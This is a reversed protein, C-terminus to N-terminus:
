MFTQLLNMANRQRREAAKAMEKQFAKEAERIHFAEQDAKKKDEAQKKQIEELKKKASKQAKSREKAERVAEKAQSEALAQSLIGQDYSPGLTEGSVRSGSFEEARQRAEPTAGVAAAEQSPSLIGQEVTKSPRSYQALFDQTSLPAPRENPFLQIGPTSMSGFDDFGQPVYYGTQGSLPSLIGSKYNTTARNIEELAAKNAATLNATVSPDPVYGGDKFVDGYEPEPGTSGVWREMNPAVYDYGDKDGTPDICNGYKDRGYICGSGPLKCGGSGDPVLPPLCEDGTPPKCGGRGDSVLPPTCGNNTTTTTTPNTNTTTTTNPTTNTSTTTTPTSTFTSGGWPFTGSGLLSPQQISQGLLGYQDRGFYEPDFNIFRAM